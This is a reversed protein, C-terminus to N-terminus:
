KRKLSRTFSKGNNNDKKEEIYNINCFKMLIKEKEEIKKQINFYKILSVNRIKELTRMNEMFAKKEKSINDSAKQAEKITFDWYKILIPAGIGINLLTSILLSAIQDHIGFATLIKNCTFLSVFFLVFYLSISVYIKKERRKDIEIAKITFEKDKFKMQELFANYAINIKNYEEKLIDKKNKLNLLELELKNALLLRKNM